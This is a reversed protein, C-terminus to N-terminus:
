IGRYHHELHVRIKRVFIFFLFKSLKALFMTIFVKKKVLKLM